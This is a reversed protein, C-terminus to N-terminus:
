THYSWPNDSKGLRTTWTENGFGRAILGGHIVQYYEFYTRNFEDDYETLRGNFRADSDKQGCHHFYYGSLSREPFKGYDESKVPEKAKKWTTFAFSGFCGDYSYTTVYDKLMTKDALREALKRRLEAGKPNGAMELGQFVGILRNLENLAGREFRLQEHPQNCQGKPDKLAKEIADTAEKHLQKWTKQPNEQVESM